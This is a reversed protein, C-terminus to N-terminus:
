LLGADYEPDDSPLADEAQQKLCVACYYPTTDDRWQSYTLSVRRGCFESDCEQEYDTSDHAERRMSDVRDYNFDNM